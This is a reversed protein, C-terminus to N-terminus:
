PNYRPSSIHHRLVQKRTLIPISKVVTKKAAMGKNYKHVLPRYHTLCPMATRCRASCSAASRGCKRTRAMSFPFISRSRGKAWRSMPKWPQMGSATMKTIILGSELVPYHPDAAERFAAIIGDRGRKDLNYFAELLANLSSEQVLEKGM